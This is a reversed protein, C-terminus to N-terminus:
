LQLVRAVGGMQKKKKRRRTMLIRGQLEASFIICRNRCFGTVLGKSSTSCSAVHASLPLRLAGDRIDRFSSLAWSPATPSAREPLHAARRSSKLYGFPQAVVDSVFTTQRGNRTFARPRTRHRGSLDPPWVAPMAAPCNYSYRLSSHATGYVTDAWIQSRSILSRLAVNWAALHGSADM